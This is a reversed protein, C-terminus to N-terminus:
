NTSFIWGYYLQANDAPTGRLSASPLYTIGLDYTTPKTDGYFTHIGSQSIFDSYILCGLPINCVPDYYEYTRTRVRGTVTDTTEITKIRPGVIINGSFVSEERQPTINVTSPEYQISTKLGTITSIGTLCNDALYKPVPQRWSSLNLEHTIASHNYGPDNGKGNPYGFFDYGRDKTRDNYLLRYRDILVGDSFVDVGSLKQRGDIFATTNDLTVERIVKGDADKLTIGSIFDAPAGLHPTITTKRTTFEISGTSTSIRSPISHNIFRTREDLNPGASETLTSYLAREGLNFNFSYGSLMKDSTRTWEQRPTYSITVADKELASSIKTLNWQSVAKYDRNIMPTTIVTSYSIAKIYEKDEFTYVTGEPSYIDFGTIEGTNDINNRRPTIVLESAPCEVINGDIIYFSGSYGAFSYNYCDYEVDKKAEFVSRLYDVDVGSTIRLDFDVNDQPGYGRWEDPFGNIQRSICGLGTLSWGLGVSTSIDTKKIGGTHYRLGIAVELDGNQLALLPISIDATGTVHSVPYDQYRRMATAEPSPETIADGGTRPVNWIDPDTQAGAYPSILMFLVTLILESLRIIRKM